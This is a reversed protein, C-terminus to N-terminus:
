RNITRLRLFLHRFMHAAIVDQPTVPLIDLSVREPHAAAFENFGAAFAALYERTEPKLQTEYDREIIDWFGLWKILYDTVAADRGFYSAANGRYYPLTEELIEWGDEAQAWALGFAMDEDTAGYIHPVGLADREISAQWGHSLPSALCLLTPSLTLLSRIRGVQHGKPRGARGSSAPPHNLSGQLRM